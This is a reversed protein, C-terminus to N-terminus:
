PQDAGTKIPQLLTTSLEQARAIQANTMLKRLAAKNTIAGGDGQVAALNCWAYAQVYDKPVGEGNRYMMCLSFQASAHGQEASKRFWRMAEADDEPVSEGTDYMLGLLNQLAALSQDQEAAKRFWREAEAGNKPVGEDTYYM